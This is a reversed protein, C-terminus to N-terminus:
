KFQVVAKPFKREIIYSIRNSFNIVFYHEVLKKLSSNYSGYHRALIGVPAVQASRFVGLHLVWFLAM